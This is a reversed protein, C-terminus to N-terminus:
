NRGGKLRPEHTHHSDREGGGGSIGTRKDSKGDEPRPQPPRSKHPEQHNEHAAGPGGIRETNPHKNSM